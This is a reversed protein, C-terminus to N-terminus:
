ISFILRCDRLYDDIYYVAKIDAKTLLQDIYNRAHDLEM